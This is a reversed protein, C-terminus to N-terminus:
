RGPFFAQLLRNIQNRQDRAQQKQATMDIGGRESQQILADVNDLDKLKAKLQVFDAETLPKIDDAM